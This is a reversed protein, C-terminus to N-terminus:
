SLWNAHAWWVVRDGVWISFNIPQPTATTLTYNKYSMKGPVRKNMVQTVCEQFKLRIPTDPLNKTMDEIEYRLKDPESDVQQFNITETGPMLKPNFNPDGFSESCTKKWKGDGSELTWDLRSLDPSIHNIGKIHQVDFDYNIVSHLWNNLVKYERQGTFNSLLSQQDTQLLFRRSYVYNNFKNLAYVVAFLWHHLAQPLSKFLINAKGPLRSHDWAGGVPM